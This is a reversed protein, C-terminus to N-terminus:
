IMVRHKVTSQNQILEVLALTLGIVNDLQKQGNDKIRSQVPNSECKVPKDKINM